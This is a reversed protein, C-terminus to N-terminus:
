IRDLLRDIRPDYYALEAPTNKIRTDLYDGHVKLVTCATHTLPPAGDAADPTSIITPAVGLDRLANEMLHDFNTTVIVRIHGSAALQAIARHAATPTKRGQEREEETPEFYERLLQSREAPTKAIADLLTSYDADQGYKDRYWAVPDPECQESQIHALKRILDLVVEWGTPIGASRSVGSGLLVTYVGKNSHVAFALSVIPDIM